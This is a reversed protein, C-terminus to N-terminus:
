SAPRNQMAMRARADAHADHEGGDHATAGTTPHASIVCPCVFCYCCFALSLLVLFCRWFFDHCHLMVRRVVNLRGLHWQAIATATAYCCCWRYCYSWRCCCWCYYYCLRYLVLPLLMLVQKVPVLVLVLLLLLMLPLLVLVLVLVLVLLVLLCYLPHYARRSSSSYQHVAVNNDCRKKTLCAYCTAGLLRGRLVQARSQM